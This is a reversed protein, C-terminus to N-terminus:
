RVFRALAKLAEPLARWFTRSLRQWRGKGSRGSVALQPPLYVSTKKWAAGFREQPLNDIQAQTPV